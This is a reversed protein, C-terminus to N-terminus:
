AVGGAHEGLVKSYVQQLKVRAFGLAPYVQQSAARAVPADRCRRDYGPLTALRAIAGADSAQAARTIWLPASM